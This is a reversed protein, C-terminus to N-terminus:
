SKLTQSGRGVGKVVEAGQRESFLTEVYKREAIKNANAVGYVPLGIFVEARPEEAFEEHRGQIM